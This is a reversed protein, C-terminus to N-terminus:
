AHPRLTTLTTQTEQLELEYQNYRDLDGETFAAAKLSELYIVRKELITIIESIKM